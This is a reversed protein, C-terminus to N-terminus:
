FQVLCERIRQYLVELQVQSTIFPPLLYITNGLPRLFVGRQMFFSFLTNRMDGYREMEVALDFALILGLQRVNKVKPHQQLENSFTQHAKTILEINHQIEKSQFLEIAALAAACALPNGTYTHGHFLGKAIEDAYFADYIEQTCTTIGMPVMGASLAKSLCVVDPKTELYDSAFNKGTKGFGTMVEDAICIIGASKCKELIAELGSKSYTKMAAAGQIMPEYIFGAIPYESIWKSLLTIVEQNNEGNPKPLRLVEILHNKFAGNYVSLGSVSMAGFTDGHFGEELALMYKKPKGLNHHFQLAMKIGIETATSGNDNYFVKAQNNGLLQLVKEALEIAPQHTFGSFVIQDLQKMQQHVKKIISPHCHGYMSTYWSSIADIYKNGHEDYLFVGKAKIIPLVEESTKHQTLPHWIVQKDREVLTKIGFNKKINRGLSM